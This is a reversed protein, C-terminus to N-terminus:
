SAYGSREVVSPTADDRGPGGRLEVAHRFAVPPPKGACGSRVYLM